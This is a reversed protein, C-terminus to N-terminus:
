LIICSCDSATGFIVSVNVHDCGRWLILWQMTQEKMDIPDM